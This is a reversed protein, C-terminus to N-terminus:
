ANMMVLFMKIDSDDSFLFAVTSYRLGDFLWVTKAFFQFYFDTRINSIGFFYVHVLKFFIQNRESTILLFVSMGTNVALGPPFHVSLRFPSDGHTSSYVSHTVNQYNQVAEISRYFKTDRICRNIRM